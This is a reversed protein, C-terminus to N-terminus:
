KEFLQRLEIMRQHTKDLRILGARSKDLDLIMYSSISVMLCFSILIVWDTKKGKFSYGVNFSSVVCLVFLLIMISEPVHAYLREHRTTAINNMDNLAPIMQSSIVVSYEKNKSFAAAINWINASIARGQKLTSEIATKDNGANFYSIRAELYEKFDNKLIQKLSDPYLDARLIATSVANVEAILIDRRSDFRSSSLSFTFGLLLALLGLLSSEIPGFNGEKAEPNNNFRKRAAAIGLRNFLLMTILLAFSTIVSPTDYLLSNIM